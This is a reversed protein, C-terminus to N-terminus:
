RKMQCRSLQIQLLHAPMQSPRHLNLHSPRSRRHEHLRSFYICFSLVSLAESAPPPHLHFRFRQYLLNLSSRLIQRRFSRDVSYPLFRPTLIFINIMPPTAAPVFSSRFQFPFVSINIHSHNRFIFIDRIRSTTQRVIHASQDLAPVLQDHISRLFIGRQGPNFYFPSLLPQVRRLFFALSPAPHVSLRSLLRNRRYILLQLLLM